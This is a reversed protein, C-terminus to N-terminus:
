RNINIDLSTLTGGNFFTGDVAACTANNGQVNVTLHGAAASGLLSYYTANPVTFSAYTSPFAVFGAVDVINGGGGTRLRAIKGTWNCVSWANGALLCLLIAAFLRILQTKM